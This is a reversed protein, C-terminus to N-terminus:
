ASMRAPYDQPFHEAWLTADAGKGPPLMWERGLVAGTQKLFFPVDADACQDRLSRAWEPRMMRAGRGSEGGVVLWGIGDLRGCLDIPGLLPEASLWRVAAPTDRLVPIRIDAWHQDGVSVGVWVNPLPERKSLYSRMRGHRKTLLQFVHQGAEAM